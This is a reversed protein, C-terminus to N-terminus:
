KERETVNPFHQLAPGTDFRGTVTQRPWTVMVEGAESPDMEAAEAVAAAVARSEPCGAECGGAQLTYPAGCYPCTNARIETM